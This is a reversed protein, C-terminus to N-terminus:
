RPDLPGQSVDPGGPGDLQYIPGLQAASERGDPAASIGSPSAGEGAALSLVPSALPLWVGGDDLSDEFEYDEFTDYITKWWGLHFMELRHRKGLKQVGPTSSEEVPYEMAWFWHAPLLKTGLFPIIIIKQLDVVKIEYDCIRRVAVDVNKANQSIVLDDWGRKRSLSMRRLMLKQDENGWDRVNLNNHAEDFVRVGRSEGYGHLRAGLLKVFDQEYHYRTSLELEYERRSRRGSAIYYPNHSLVVRQWGEMLRVNTAVARGTNLARGIARAGYLSKGHGLKGTVLKIAM